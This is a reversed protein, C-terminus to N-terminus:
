NSYEHLDRFRINHARSIMIMVFLTRGKHTHNKKLMLAKCDSIGDRDVKGQGSTQVGNLM